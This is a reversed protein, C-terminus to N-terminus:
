FYANNIIKKRSINCMVCRISGKFIECVFLFLTWCTSSNFFISAWGYLTHQNSVKRPSLSHLPAAVANRQQQMCGAPKACMEFVITDVTM